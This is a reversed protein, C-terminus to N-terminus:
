PDKCPQHDSFGQCDGPTEPSNAEKAEEHHDKEEQHSSDPCATRLDRPVLSASCWPLFPHCSVGSPSTQWGLFAQLDVVPGVVCIWSGQCPSLPGCASGWGVEGAM